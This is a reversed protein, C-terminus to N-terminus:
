PLFKLTTIVQNFSAGRGALFIDLGNGPHRFILKDIPKGVKADTDHYLTASVTGVTLHEIKDESLAPRPIGKQCTFVIATSPDASANLFIASTSAAQFPPLSFQDPLDFSVGCATNTYANVSTPTPTPSLVPSPLTQTATKQAGSFGRGINIGVLLAAIVALFSVLLFTNRHM